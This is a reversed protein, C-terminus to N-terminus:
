CKGELNAPQMISRLIVGPFWPFIESVQSREMLIKAEDALCLEDARWFQIRDGTSRKETVTLIM